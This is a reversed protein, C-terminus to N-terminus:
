LSTMGQQKDKLLLRVHEMLSKKTALHLATQGKYNTISSEAGHELLIQSTALATVHDVDTYASMSM